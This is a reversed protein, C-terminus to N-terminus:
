LGLWVVQLVECMRWRVLHPWSMRPLLMAVAQVGTKVVSIHAQVVPLSTATTWHGRVSVVRGGPHRRTRGRQCSWVSM